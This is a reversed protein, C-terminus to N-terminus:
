LSQLFKLFEKLIPESTSYVLVLVICVHSHVRSIDDRSGNAEQQLKGNRFTIVLFVFVQSIRTFNIFM